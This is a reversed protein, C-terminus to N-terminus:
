SGKNGVPCYHCVYLYAFDLNGCEAVRCGISNSNVCLVQTFDGPKPESLAGFGNKCDVYESYWSDIVAYWPAKFNSLFVNERCKFNTIARSNQPSHGVICQRAWDGATKAAESSWVM